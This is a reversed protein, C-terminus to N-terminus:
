ESIGRVMEYLVQLQGKMSSFCRMSSGITLRSKKLVTVNFQGYKPRRVTMVSSSMIEARKSSSLKKMLACAGVEEYAQKEQTNIQLLGPLCFASSWPALRLQSTLMTHKTRM